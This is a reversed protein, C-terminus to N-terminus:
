SYGTDDAGAPHITCYLSLQDKSRPLGHHVRGLVANVEPHDVDALANALVIGFPQEIYRYLTSLLVTVAWPPVAEEKAIARLVISCALADAEVPGRHSELHRVAQLVGVAPFQIVKATV